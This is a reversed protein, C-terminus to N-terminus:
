AGSSGFGGTGRSSDSLADVIQVPTTSPIVPIMQAIKQGAEVHLPKGGAIFLIIIEGRYGADIVGGHTFVGKSAMSSRDKIIFGRGDTDQVAVGTRVKTVHGKVLNAGELAYLDYALDGENAVTPAKAGEELLKVLLM